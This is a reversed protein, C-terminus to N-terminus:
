DLSVTPPFGGLYLGSWSEVKALVASVVPNPFRKMYSRLWAYSIASKFSPIEQEVGTKQRFYSPDTVGSASREVLRKLAGDRQAYLDKGNAAAFEAIMVLPAAAFLHYHLARGAREMELPLTGDKQIQKIGVEASDLGWKWLSRDDTAIAIAAVELGAWYRHNNLAHGPTHRANPPDAFEMSQAAVHKLWQAIEAAQAPLALDSPRVKLYAIAIAGVLWKQVYYSQSGNMNGALFRDRAASDILSIACVAAGHSGTTRYSDAADVIVQTTEQYPATVEKYQEQAEPDVISHHEDTYYGSSTLDAPLHQPAPCTYFQGTLTVPHLDWPSKLPTAANAPLALIAAFFLSVIYRRFIVNM